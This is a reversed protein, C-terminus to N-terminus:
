RILSLVYGVFAVAMIAGLVALLVWALGGLGMPTGETQGRGALDELPHREPPLPRYPREDYPFREEDEDPSTDRPPAEDSSM